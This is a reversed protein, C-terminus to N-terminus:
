KMKTDKMRGGQRLEEGVVIEEEVVGINLEEELVM